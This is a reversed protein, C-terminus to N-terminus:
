PQAAPYLEDFAAVSDPNTFIYPSAPEEITEISEAQILLREEGGIKVTQVTGEISVWADNEFRSAQEGSVLIGFPVADATCCMLLFRSVAFMNKDMSDDRFVFGQVSIPKGAFVPKYMEIAGVTESFIEPRVTVSPLAYLRKALEAFEVSYKDKPAFLDVPANENGAPNPKGVGDATGTDELVDESGSGTRVDPNPYTYVMGKKAAMSSALPQDPVLLGFFLPLAFLGYVTMNRVVGRPHPHECDCVDGADGMVAHYVMGFAIFLLPVPCLLLLKQMQPALYYELLNSENLHMIYIALAALLLARMAYHVRTVASSRNM